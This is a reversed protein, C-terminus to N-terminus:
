LVFLGCDYENKQQPVTIIHCEIKHPLCKWIRDAISINSSVDEQDM